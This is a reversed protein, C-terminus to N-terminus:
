YKSFLGVKNGETDIIHAMFGNQGIVTKPLVIKGGVDAVRNLATQLDEGGNLYVIAIKDSPEYNPGQMLCGGSQTEATHPFFATKMGMAEMVKIDIDLVTNYFTAAREINNTSIEIWHITNSMDIQTKYKCNLSLEKKQTELEM